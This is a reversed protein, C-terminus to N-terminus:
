DNTVMGMWVTHATPLDNQIWIMSAGSKSARLAKVTMQLKDGNQGTAKDLTIELEPSAGMFHSALDYANVAWPLATPGDSFLDVEVTKEQGVPILLGKTAIQGFGSPSPVNITDPFVPASNFYPSDGMPQCPDHGAAAAKNSWLKTVLYPLDAPRYYTDPLVGCLDGLEQGFFYGWVIHDDDVTNWAPNDIPLPDTAAEVIEHSGAATLNDLLTIKASMPPCRGIVSYVVFEDKNPGMVFDSHYGQFAQCLAGSSAQVTTNAPPFIAYLTNVDPQPFGQTNKIQGALWQQISQDTLTCKGNNCTSPPQSKMDLHIPSLATAKGVAYEGLADEWYSSAVTKAVFDDIMPQLDDGEYTIAILRPADMVPGGSPDKSAKPVSPHFAPFAPALDPSMGLDPPTSLDTASSGGGCGAVLVAILSGTALRLTTM